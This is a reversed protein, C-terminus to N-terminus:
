RLVLNVRYKLFIISVFVQKGQVQGNGIALGFGWGVMSKEIDFKM